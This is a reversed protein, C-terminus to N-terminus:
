LSNKLETILNKLKLIEKARKFSFEIEQNTNKIQEYTMKQNGKM